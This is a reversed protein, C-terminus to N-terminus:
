KRRRILGFTSHTRRWSNTIQIKTQHRGPHVGKQGYAEWPMLKKCVPCSFKPEDEEEKIEIAETKVSMM